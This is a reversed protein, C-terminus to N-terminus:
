TYTEGFHKAVLAIDRIDIKGDPITYTTGTLDARRDYTGDNEVSGYLKAVLAIDRIDCKLDPVWMIPGSLDWPSYPFMLPYNDRNQADIVYPTDGIRDSGTENQYQGSYFDTGTYNSWYNGGSPYGNDWIDHYGDSIVQETNNIFNNHFVVNNTSLCYYSYFVIGSIANSLINNSVFTNNWSQSVRIGNENGSIDNGFIRNDHSQYAILIGYGNNSIMNSTVNNGYSWDLSIGADTNNSIINNSLIHNGRIDMIGGLVHIGQGGNSIINDTVLNNSCRAVVVSDGNSRFYNGLISISNGESYVGFGNRTFNNDTILNSLSNSFYARVGAFGNNLLTNGSIVNNVSGDQLNIGNENNDSAINGTISNDTSQTITMGYDNYKMINDSINDFSSKYLYIGSQLSMRGAYSLTFGAVTVSNASVHIASGTRMADIVTHYKDEGVLSISKNVVVNEFYMGADVFITHGNRTEPANIAGQITTYNLRTDLNHIAVPLPPRPLVAVYGGSTGINSDSFTLFTTGVAKTTFDVTMLTTDGLPNNATVTLYGDGVHVQAPWLSEWGLLDLRSANWRLSFGIVAPHPPDWGHGFGLVIGAYGEVYAKVIEPEVYVTDYFYSQGRVSATPVMIALLLVSLMGVATKKELKTRRREIVTV